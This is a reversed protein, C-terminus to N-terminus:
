AAVDRPRVAGLPQQQFYAELHRLVTRYALLTKPKWARKRQGEGFWQEAYDTFTVPKPKQWGHREVRHLRDRLESEAQKLTVGDREAGITEKVQVDAGDRYKIKWVIGRKGDYRIACGGSPM